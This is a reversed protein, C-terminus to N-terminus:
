MIYYRIIIRHFGSQVNKSPINAVLHFIILAILLYAAFSLRYVFWKPIQFYIFSVVILQFFSLDLEWRICKQTRLSYILTYIYIYFACVFFHMVRRSVCVSLYRRTAYRASPNEDPFTNGTLFRTKKDLCVSIERGSVCSKWWIRVKCRVKTGYSSLRRTENRNVM